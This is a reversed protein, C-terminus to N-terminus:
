QAPTYTVDMGHLTYGGVASTAGYIVFTDFATEADSATDVYSASYGACGALKLSVKMGTATCEFVMDARYAEGGSFETGIGMDGTLNKYATGSHILKDSVGGSRKEIRMATPAQLNLFFAYGTYDTFISHTLGVNDAGIRNGTSNLVGFRLGTTNPQPSALSFTLSVSLSDGPNLERVTDAATFYMLAYRNNESILTGKKEKLGSPAYATYWAATMPLNQVLREKRVFTESLLTEAQALSTAFGVLALSIQRLVQKKKM